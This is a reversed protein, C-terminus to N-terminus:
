NEESLVFTGVSGANLKALYIKDEISINFQVEKEKKNFAILVYKKDPTKFAVNPLNDITNSAIRVSGTRVFKSAHAVSYYAVERTVANGQITVAGLCNLCGHETRPLMNEDAALNWELGTKCWNRAAGIIVNEIHWNFDGKFNSPGGVWQETFYLNKDPHAEHVKSLASIEGGYLHFASGDIYKNADPDDLISIPYDIRDANHDYIIIKTKIGASEFTPGLASKVFLAQDEATMYMSPENHPHLPENQITIADLTIGEAEMEQIFKVLYRAYVDYCDKKLEGGILAENTKMWAPASWPSGLIKIDPNIELIEKLVPILHVREMNMNFKQLEFDTEGKALDNYTFSSDSLDSAAVSIRIYNSGIGMGLPSFIEQLLSDKAKEEMSNILRASGGTLTFGYGDITQFAEDPNISITNLEANLQESVFLNDQQQFYVGNDSDTIWAQPKTLELDERSNSSCSNAIILVVFLVIQVLRSKAIM